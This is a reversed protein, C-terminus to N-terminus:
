CTAVETTATNCRKKARENDDLVLVYTTRMTYGDLLDVLQTYLDAMCTLDTINPGTLTPFQGPTAGYECEWQAATLLNDCDKCLAIATDRVVSPLRHILRYTMNAAVAMVTFSEDTATATRFAQLAKDVEARIAARADPPLPHHREMADVFSLATAQYKRAKTAKHGRARKDQARRQARNLPKTM